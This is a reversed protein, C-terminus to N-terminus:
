SFIKQTRRFCLYTEVSFSLSLVCIVDVGRGGRLTSSMHTDGRLALVRARNRSKKFNSKMYIIKTISTTSSLKYVRTSFFFFFFRNFNSNYLQPMKWTLFITGSLCLIMHFTVPFIIGINLKHILSM